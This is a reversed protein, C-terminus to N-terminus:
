YIRAKKFLTRVCNIEHTKTNNSSYNLIRDTHTPNRYVQTGPKEANIRTILLDFFSLKKNSENEMTLTKDDFNNILNHTNKKEDKEIIVFTDDM